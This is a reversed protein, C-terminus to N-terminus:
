LSSRMSQPLRLTKVNRAGLLCPADSDALSQLYLSLLNELARPSLWYSSASEIDERFRQDSLDLGFFEKQSQELELQESLLRLKNDSLQQLKAQREGETLQVSEAIARIERTLDGLIEECEGVSSEFVGIRLLCRNYIDADVTGPTILNYILVAESKQGNRDLRGIRQEIRMPNWPLDYNVLTDCFQYDLGECGVESFLLVDIAEADDKGLMFRRRLAVREDDQVGGHVLGVRAGLARLERALYCLTHRFTSFVMIRSNEAGAKGAVVKLLAELKPDDPPLAQAEKVVAVIADGLTQKANEGVDLGFESDDLDMDDLRRTLIDEIMPALAFICSAAQRKLTTMMFQVCRDGHLISLIRAQVALLNDHLQRQAPTFDVVVTEPKRVAFDGIDRRRTRNIIGAFSHLGELASIAEVRRRDDPDRESLIASAKAYTPDSPYVARGWSTGAANALEASAMSQWDTGAGRVARVARNIPPNPEAMEDYSARDIILDPRLTNLLVFLDDDGLQLPTATMFLVAEANDCFFRVAQHAFTSPNRIHHAEDVIVLDFRPPPDLDLLGKWKRRGKDGHLLREDFLSYPIIVRPSQPDWVGELDTEGIANRLGRGDLHIFKEDFRRMEAQWKKEAVLPRPCIILVTRVDRRAQLERLILGAEITKGVGVGDAILLRPRDAHIFKIVPRFQYPIFDVRAANLSFLSSGGPHLIEAASLRAHFAEAAEISPTATPKECPLLQSAYFQRSGGEIFLTYRGEPHGPMSEIVAGFRSPDSKLRVVSGVPLLGDSLPPQADKPPSFVPLAEYTKPVRGLAEQKLEELVELVHHEPEIYRLLRQVTDLDRYITDASEMSTAAHAWRNRVAQLEKLYNRCDPSLM